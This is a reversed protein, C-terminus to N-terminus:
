GRRRQAAASLTTTAVSFPRSISSGCDSAATSLPASCAGDSSLDNLPALRLPRLPSSLADSRGRRSSGPAWPNAPAESLLCLDATIEAGDPTRLVANLPFDENPPRVISCAQGRWYATDGAKWHARVGLQGLFEATTRPPNSYVHRGGDPPPRPAARPPPPRPAKDGGSRELIPEFEDLSIASSTGVDAIDMDDGASGPGATDHVHQHSRARGERPPPTAFNSRTELSQSRRSNPSRGQPVEAKLQDREAAVYRLSAKLRSLEERLQQTDADDSRAAIDSFFQKLRSNEDRLKAMEERLALESSDGGGVAILAQRLARTEAEAEALRESLRAADADVSATAPAADASSPQVSPVGKVEAVRERVTSMLRGLQQQLDQVTPEWASGDEPKSETSSRSAASDLVTILAATSAATALNTSTEAVEQTSTTVARHFKQLQEVLTAKQRRLTENSSHLASVIADVERSNSVFVHRSGGASGLSSFSMGHSSAVSRIDLMGAGAGLLSAQVHEAYDEEDPCDPQLGHGTPPGAGEPADAVERQRRQAEEQLEKVQSHLQAIIERQRVILSQEKSVLVPKALCRITSAKQAFRLSTLSQEIADEAPTLTVLVVTSSNGGLHVSLLRTLKSDRFPIHENRMSNESRVEGDESLRQDKGSLKEIVKGLFFLSKNISNSENMYETGAQVRENGALDVIVLRGVRTLRPEDVSTAAAPGHPADAPATCEVCLTLITHSRSSVENYKTHAVRRRKEAIGLLQIVESASSVIKEKLGEVRFCRNEADEKVPLNQSQPSIKRLLDNVREMYLECYSMRVLFERGAGECAKSDLFAFLDEMAFHIIGKGEVQSDEASSPNVTSGSISYTKGSSTQGYALIAGNLGDAASAVIGKFCKDYIEKTSSKEGFVADVMTETDDRRLHELSRVESRTKLGLPSTPVAPSGTGALFISTDRDAPDRSEMGAARGPGRESHPMSISTETLHWPAKQVGITLENELLPRVRCCVAIRGQRLSPLSHRQADSYTSPGEPCAAM